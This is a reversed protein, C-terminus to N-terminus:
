CAGRGKARFDVYASCGRSDEDLLCSCDVDRSEAVEHTMETRFLLPTDVKRERGNEIQCLVPREAGRFTSDM